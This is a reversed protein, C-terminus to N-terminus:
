EEEGEEVVNGEAVMQHFDRAQMYVQADAEVAIPDLMGRSTLRYGYWDGDDNSQATTSLNWLSAFTPAQVEREETKGDPGTVPLKWTQVSLMSNWSKAVKIQSGKFTLCAPQPKTVPSVLLVYFRMVQNAHTGDHCVHRRLESDFTADRALPWNAPHEAIFKPNQADKTIERWFRRFHCPIVDIGKQGDFCERTITHVFQGQRGDFDPDKLLKSQGQLISIYPVAIDEAGVEELGSGADALLDEMPLALSTAGATAVAKAENKTENKTM